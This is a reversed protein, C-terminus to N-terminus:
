RTMTDDKALDQETAWAAIQRRSTFGLKSLINSVHTEITRENVVLVEAIERNYKGQAVLVAVERERRTLGGYTEKAMQLPSRSQPPPLLATAQRLFNARLESDPVNTAIEEIIARAAAFCQIAAAPRGQVQYLRGLAVQLPWILRPTGQAQATALAAQFTAGAEPWQQLAALGEGRLRALYPIASSDRNELNAASAFLRDVIQLALVPEGQALALEVRAAWIRRPSLAELPLEPSFVTNLLTEAQAFERAVILLSTLCGTTIRTHALSGIEKAVTLAQELHHRATPLALLDHYLVGL